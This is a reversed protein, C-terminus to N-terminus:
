TIPNEYSGLVRSSMPLTEWLRAYKSTAVVAVELHISVAVAELHISVEM